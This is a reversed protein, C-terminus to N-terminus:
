KCGEEDAGDEEKWEEDEDEEYAELSPPFLTRHGRCCQRTVRVDEGKVHRGQVQDTEQPEAEQTIADVSIFSHYQHYPHVDVKDDWNSLSQKVDEGTNFAVQSNNVGDGVQPQSLRTSDPDSIDDSPTNPQKAKYWLTREHIIM